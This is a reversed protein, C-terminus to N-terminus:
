GRVADGSRGDQDRHILTELGASIDGLVKLVAAQNMEFADLMKQTDPMARLEAIERERDKTALEAEHSAATLADVKAQLDAVATKADRLDRELIECRSQWMEVTDGGVPSIKVVALALGCVAAIVGITGLNISTQIFEVPM